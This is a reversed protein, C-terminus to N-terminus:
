VVIGGGHGVNQSEENPQRLTLHGIRRSGGAHAPPEPRVIPVPWDEEGEALEIPPAKERGLIASRAEAESLRVIDGRGCIGNHHLTERLIVEDQVIYKKTPEPRREGIFWARWAETERACNAPLAALLDGIPPGTFGDGSIGFGISEARQQMESKIREREDIVARIEGAVRQLRRASHVLDDALNVLALQTRQRERKQQPTSASAAKIKTRLNRQQDKLAALELKAKDRDLVREPLTVALMGGQGSTRADLSSQVAREAEALKKEANEIQAGCRKEQEQLQRAELISRRSRPSFSPQKV